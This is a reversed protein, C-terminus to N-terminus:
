SLTIWRALRLCRHAEKRSKGVFTETHRYRAYFEGNHQVRDYERQSYPTRELLTRCRGTSVEGHHAPRYIDTALRAGDRMPIMVDREVVVDNAREPLTWSRVSM